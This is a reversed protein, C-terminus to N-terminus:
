CLYGLYRRAFPASGLGIRSVPVPNRVATFQWRSASDPPFRLWLRHSGPISEATKTECGFELSKRDITLRTIEAPPAPKPAPNIKEECEKIKNKCAQELNSDCKMAAKFSKIADRYRGRKMYTEGKQYISACQGWISIPMSLAFALVILRILKNMKM